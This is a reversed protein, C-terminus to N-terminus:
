FWEYKVWQLILLVELQCQLTDACCHLDELRIDTFILVKIFLNNSYSLVRILGTYQHVTDNGSLLKLYLEVDLM